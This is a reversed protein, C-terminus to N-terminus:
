FGKWRETDRSGFCVSHFHVLGKKDLCSMWGSRHKLITWDIPWCSMIWSNEIFSFFYWWTPKIIL